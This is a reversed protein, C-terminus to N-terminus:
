RYFGERGFSKVGTFRAVKAIEPIWPPPDRNEIVIVQLRTDWNRFPQYFRENLDSHALAVDDPSM